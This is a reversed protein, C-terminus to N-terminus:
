SNMLLDTVADAKVRNDKSATATEIKRKLAIKKGTKRTQTHKGKLKKPTIRLKKKTTDVNKAKERLLTFDRVLKTLRHDYVNQVEKANYGYELLLNGIKDADKQYAEPSAWEPIAELTKAKEYKKMDEFASKRKSELENVAKEYAAVAKRHAETVKQRQLIAQTPDENELSEWDFNADAQEIAMVNTAAALVNQNFEPLKQNEEWVSQQYRVAEDFKQRDEAFQKQDRERSMYADKLESISVPELGDGMPVELSYIASEDAELHEALQTINEIDGEEGEEEEGEQEEEKGEDEDSDAEDSEEQDDTEQDDLDEDEGDNEIDPTYDDADEDFGEHTEEGLNDSLIENVKAITDGSALAQQTM